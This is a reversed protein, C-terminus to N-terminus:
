IHRVSVRIYGSDPTQHAKHLTHHECRWLDAWARGWVVEGGYQRPMVEFMATEIMEGMEIIVVKRAKLLIAMGPRIPLVISGFTNLWSLCIQSKSDFDHRRKTM